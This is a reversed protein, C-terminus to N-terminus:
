FQRLVAHNLFIMPALTGQIREHSKFCTSVNEAVPARLRGIEQVIIGPDTVHRRNQALLALRTVHRRHAAAAAPLLLDVRGQRVAELDADEAGLGGAFRGVEEEFVFTTETISFM